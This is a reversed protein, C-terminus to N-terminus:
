NKVITETVLNGKEYFRKLVLKGKENYFNWNGSYYWHAYQTSNDLATKGKSQIKGNLHYIRTFCHKQKYKERKILISNQNYRWKKIPDDNKYKGISKYQTSDQSYKEIWLGEKRKDIKQNILSTKCSSLSLIIFSLLLALKRM